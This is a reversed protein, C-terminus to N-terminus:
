MNVKNTKENMKEKAKRYKKLFQRKKYLSDQTSRVQQLKRDSMKNRNGIWDVNRLYYSDEYLQRELALEKM